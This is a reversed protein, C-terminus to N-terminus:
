RLFLLGALGGLMLVKSFASLKKWDSGSPKKLLLLVICLLPIGTLLGYPLKATLFGSGIFWALLLGLLSAFVLAMSRSSKEGHRTALTTIGAKQDGERDEADKVIERLMNSLGAFLAYVVLPEMLHGPYKGIADRETFPLLLAVAACFVSVLLNGWLVTSKLAYSYWWLLVVSAPYIWYWGLSNHQMALYLSLLAGATIVAIYIAIARGPSMWVGIAQKHPKNIRDTERDFLDNIVYGSFTVLVTVLCLLVFSFTGISFSLGAETLAPYLVGYRILLLTLVVIVLNPWRM